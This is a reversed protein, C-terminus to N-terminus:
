FFPSIYSVYGWYSFYCLERESPFGLINMEPHLYKVSRSHDSCFQTSWLGDKSRTIYFFIATQEQFDNDTLALLGFPGFMGRHTSGGQICEIKESMYSGEEIEANSINPYDFTVEVDLQVLWLGCM